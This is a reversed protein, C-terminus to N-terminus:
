ISNADIIVIDCAQSDHIDYHSLILALTKFSIESFLNHKRKKLSHRHQIMAKISQNDAYQGVVLRLSQHPQETTLNYNDRLLTLSIHRFLRDYLNLYAESSSLSAKCMKKRLQELAYLEQALLATTDSLHAIRKKEKLLALIKPNIFASKSQQYYHSLLTQASTSNPSFYAISM